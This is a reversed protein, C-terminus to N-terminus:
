LMISTATIIFFWFVSLPSFRDRIQLQEIMVTMKQKEEEPLSDLDGFMNKDMKIQSVFQLFQWSSQKLTQEKMITKAEEPKEM